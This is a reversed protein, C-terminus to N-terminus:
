CVYSFLSVFHNPILANLAHVALLKTLDLTTTQHLHCLIHIMICWKIPLLELLHSQLRAVDLANVVDYLQRKGVFEIQAVVIGESQSGNGHTLYYTDM